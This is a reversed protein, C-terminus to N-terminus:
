EKSEEEEESDSGIAGLDGMASLDPMGEMGPMGGMNALNQFQSMDFAGTDEPKEEDEDVYHNWDIGLWHQKIKEKTLRPWFEAETDKKMLIFRVERGSVHYKSTEPDIEDFLEIDFNYDKSYIQSRGSFTLRTPQVDVKVNTPEACDVSLLVKDKRQAWSTHPKDQNSSM